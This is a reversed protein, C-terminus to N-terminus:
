GIATQIEVLVYLNYILIKKIQEKLNLIQNTEIELLSNETVDRWYESQLKQILM